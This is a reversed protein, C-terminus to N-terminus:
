QGRKERELKLSFRDGDNVAVTDPFIAMAEELLIDPTKYRSSFHGILLKKANALRATEAAQGATSHWNEKALTKDAEAFTAEHFLLDVNRIQDAISPIFKTDSIYAYSRPHYPPLTLERNPIVTGDPMVHDAGAKVPVMDAIGLGYEAIKEKIINLPKPKERFVYGFTKTRHILEVAQVTLKDTEYIFETDKGPTHHIIGFPLPGFYKLHDGLLDQLGEPGYIHMEQERGMLGLSSLLGFLGFV